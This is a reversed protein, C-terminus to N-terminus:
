KMFIMFHFYVRYFCRFTGGAVRVPGSLSVQNHSHTLVCFQSVETIKFQQVKMWGPVVQFIRKYSPGVSNSKKLYQTQKWGWGQWFNLLLM